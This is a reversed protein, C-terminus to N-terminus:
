IYARVSGAGGPPPPSTPSAPLLTHTAQRCLLLITPAHSVPSPSRTGGGRRGWGWHRYGWPGICPSIGSFFRARNGVPEGWARSSGQYRWARVGGGPPPPPPAGCARAPHPLRFLVPIGASACAPHPIGFSHAPRGASARTPHPALLTRTDGIFARAPHLTGASVYPYGKGFARAPLPIGASALYRSCSLCPLPFLNGRGTLGEGRPSIWV